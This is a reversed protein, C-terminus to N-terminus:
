LDDVTGYLDQYDKSSIYRLGLAIKLLPILEHCSGRSMDLFHKFEKSGISSGEAINLSISVSARRLQSILGFIEDKPFSQTLKYVMLALNVTDQYVNLKEFNFM